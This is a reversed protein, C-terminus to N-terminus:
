NIYTGPRPKKTARMRDLRVKWSYDRLKRFSFFWLFKNAHDRVQYGYNTRRMRFPPKFKMMRMCTKM